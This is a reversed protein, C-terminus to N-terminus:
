FMYGLLDIPEDIWPQNGTQKIMLENEIKEIAVGYNNHEHIRLWSCYHSIAQFGQKLYIREDKVVSFLFDVSKEKALQTLSSLLKSAIGQQRYSSEVCLDVVGFITFTSDGVRIVRHDVGMHAVLLDEVSVLYRFHPLQKYYSRPKANEVPFCSNRLKTIQQHRDKSIDFEIIRTLEM